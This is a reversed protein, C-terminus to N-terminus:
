NIVHAEQAGANQYKLSSFHHHARQVHEFELMWEANRQASCFAGMHRLLDESHKELVTATSDILSGTELSIFQLLGYAQNLADFARQQQGLRNLIESQSVTADRLGTLLCAFQCPKTEEDSIASHIHGPMYGLVQEYLYHAEPWHGQELLQEAKLYHSWCEQLDM